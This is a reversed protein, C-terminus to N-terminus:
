FIINCKKPYIIIKTKHNYNFPLEFINIDKYNIFNFNIDSLLSRDSILVFDGDDYKKKIKSYFMPDFEKIFTKERHANVYWPFYQNNEFVRQLLIKFYIDKQLNISYNINCKDKINKILNQSIKFNNITGKEFFNNQIFFLKDVKEFTDIQNSTKFAINNDYTKNILNFDSLLFLFIVFYLESRYKLNDIYYFFVYIGIYSGCILRFTNIEHISLSIFLVSLLSLLFINIEKYSIKKKIIKYIFNLFYIFNFILIISFIIYYNKNFLNKYSEFFFFNLFRKILYIYDYNYSQLFVSPTKIYNTYFINLIEHNNLFQLYFIIIIFFLLLICFVKRLNYKRSFEQNLKLYSIIFISFFFIIIYLITGERLISVLGFLIGSFLQLKKKSSFFFILSILLLFFLIYNEWPYSIVPHILFMFSVAIFCVKKSYFSSGLFYLLIFSFSYIFSYFIQLNLNNFGFIKLIINNIFISLYSYFTFFDRYPIKGDNYQLASDLILGHHHGDYHFQLYFLGCFFSIFALFFTFFLYQNNLEIKLKKLHM